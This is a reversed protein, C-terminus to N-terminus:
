QLPRDSTYLLGACICLILVAARFYSTQWNKQSEFRNSIDSNSAAIELSAREAAVYKTGYCASKNLYRAILLTTNCLTQIFSERTYDLRKTNWQINLPLNRHKVEIERAGCGVKGVTKLLTRQQQQQQQTKTVHHM